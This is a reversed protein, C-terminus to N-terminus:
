YDYSLDFSEALIDKRRSLRYRGCMFCSKIM